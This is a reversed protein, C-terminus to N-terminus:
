ATKEFHMNLWEQWGGKKDKREWHATMSEGDGAIKLTARVEDGAFIWSGDRNSRAQMVTYNGSNDFSRMPIPEDNGCPGILEIVNIKEEGMWVDASHVIFHKGPLWEYRDMGKVVIQPKSSPTSKGKTKWYGILADFKHSM